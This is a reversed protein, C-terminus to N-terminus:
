SGVVAVSAPAYRWPKIRWVPLNVSLSPLNAVVSAFLSTILNLPVSSKIFRLYLLTSSARSLCAFVVIRTVANISVRAMYRSESLIHTNSKISGIKLLVFKSLPKAVAMSTTIVGSIHIPFPNAMKAPTIPSARLAIPLKTKPTTCNTESIGIKPSKTLSARLTRSALDDCKARSKTSSM